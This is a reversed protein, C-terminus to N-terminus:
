PSVGAIRNSVNCRQSLQVVLHTGVVGVAKLLPALLDLRNWEAMAPDFRSLDLRNEDVSVFAFPDRPAHGAVPAVYGGAAYRQQHVADLRSRGTTVASPRNTPITDFSLVIGTHAM